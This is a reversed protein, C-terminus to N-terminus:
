DMKYAKDVLSRTSITGDLQGNNVTAQGKRTHIVYTGEPHKSLFSSVRQKRAFLQGKLKYTTTIDVVETGQTTEQSM